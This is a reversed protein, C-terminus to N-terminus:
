GLPRVLPGAPRTTHRAVKDRLNREPNAADDDAFEQWDCGDAGCIAMLYPEYDDTGPMPRVDLIEVDHDTPPQGARRRARSLRWQALAGPDDRFPPPVLFKPRNFLNVVLQLVLLPVSALWLGVAVVGLGTRPEGTLAAAVLILGLGGWWATSRAAHALYSRGNAEVVFGRTTAIASLDGHWVRVLRWWLLVPGAVFALGILVLLLQAGWDMGVRYAPQPEDAGTLAQWWGDVDAPDDV